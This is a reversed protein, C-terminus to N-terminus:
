RAETALFRPLGRKKAELPPSAVWLLHGCGGSPPRNPWPPRASPWSKRAEEELPRGSIPTPGAGTLRGGLGCPHPGGHPWDSQPRPGGLTHHGGQYRHGPHGHCARGCRGAWLGTKDPWPPWSEPCVEKRPWWPRTPWGCCTAVGALHLPPPLTPSIPNRKEELFLNLDQHVLPLPPM